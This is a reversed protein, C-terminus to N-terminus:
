SFLKYATLIRTPYHNVTLSYLLLVYFVCIVAQKTFQKSQTQSRNRNIEEWPLSEGIELLM